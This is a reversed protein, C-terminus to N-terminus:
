AGRGDEQGGGRKGEEVGGEGVGRVKTYKDHIIKLAGTTKKVTGNYEGCYPCVRQRKCRENVQCCFSSSCCSNVLMHYAIDAVNVALFAQEVGLLERAHVRGSCSACVRRRRPMEM